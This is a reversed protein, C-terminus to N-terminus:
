IPVLVARPFGAAAAPARKPVHRLRIRESSPARAPAKRDRPQGREYCECSRKELKKRDLIEIKGRRYQIIGAKQLGRAVLTVTTRRVALMQSLFEHTLSINNSGVRDQTQLLWRCLREDLEHLANCAATQQVQALLGENFRM